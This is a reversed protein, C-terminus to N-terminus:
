RARLVFSQKIVPLVMQLEERAMQEVRAPSVLTARELILQGAELELHQMQQQSFAVQGLTYRYMNTVYVVCLASILTSILLVLQLCMTKSLRLDAWQGSFVTCQNIHRSAANM